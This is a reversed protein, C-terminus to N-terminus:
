GSLNVDHAQFSASTYCETEVWVPKGTNERRCIRFRLLFLLPPLVDGQKLDNKIPILGCLYKDVWARSYVEDLCM